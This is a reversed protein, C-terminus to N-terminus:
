KSENLIYLDRVQNGILIKGEPLFKWDCGGYKQGNKYFFNCKGDIEYLYYNTLQEESLNLTSYLSGDANFYKISELKWPSHTLLGLNSTTWDGVNINITKEILGGSALVEIKHKESALLQNFERTGSLSTYVGDIIVANAFTTSWKLTTSDGYNLTTDCEIVLTPIPYNVSITKSKEATGGEGKAIITIIVNEKIGKLVLSDISNVSVGNCTVSTSNIVSWKAVANGGYAVISDYSISITPPMIEEQPNKCGIFLLVLLFFFVYNKM